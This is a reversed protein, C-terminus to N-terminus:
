VAGERNAGKVADAIRLSCNEVVRIVSPPIAGMEFFGEDEMHGIIADRISNTLSLHASFDDVQQVEEVQEKIIQRLQRRTIKMNDEMVM